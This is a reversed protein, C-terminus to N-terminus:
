VLTLITWNIKIFFQKLLDYLFTTFLPRLVLFKAFVEVLGGFYTWLKSEHKDLSVKWLQGYM